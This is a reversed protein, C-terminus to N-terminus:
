VGMRIVMGPPKRGPQATRVYRWPEALGFPNKQDEGTPRNRGLRRSPRFFHTWDPCKRWSSTAASLCRAVVVLGGPGSRASRHSRSDATESIGGNTGGDPSYM